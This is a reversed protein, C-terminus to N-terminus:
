KPSNVWFYTLQCNTLDFSAHWYNAGGGMVRVPSTKWNEDEIGPEIWRKSCFFANAHIVRNGEEKADVGWYQICYQDLYDLIFDGDKYGESYHNLKERGENSMVYARIARNVALIEEDNPKFYIANDKPCNPSHSELRASALVVRNQPPVPLDGNEPYKRNETLGDHLVASPFDASVFATDRGRLGIRATKGLEVARLDTIIPIDIRYEVKPELETTEGTCSNKNVLLVGVHGLDLSACRSVISFRAPDKSDDSHPLLFQGFITIPTTTQNMFRFRAVINSSGYGKSYIYDYYTEVFEFIYSSPDARQVRELEPEVASISPSELTDIMTVDPKVAGQPAHTPPAGCAAFVCVMGVVIRRM